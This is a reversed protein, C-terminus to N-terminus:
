PKAASRTGGFRVLGVSEDIQSELESKPERPKRSNTEKWNSYASCDKQFDCFECAKKSPTPDFQEKRMAGRTSVARHALLRLDEKSVTVDVLGTWDEPKGSFPTKPAVEKPPTGEPYRFYAFALRNPITGYAVWFCLAYWRLQDPNTYRGPNSSNKGDYIGVGTDERKIVLDPRGAVKTYKDVFGSIDVESQAYQGLLRNRKMTRLYNIIGDRCTQLLIEKPPSEDWKQRGHPTWDEDYKIYAKAIRVAFEKEVSETLVRVLSAPQRWLEDNYLREIGHALVHGMVAHHESRKETILKGKGPGRGLDIVGYGYKWLFKQPCEEFAEIHSWYLYEKENM